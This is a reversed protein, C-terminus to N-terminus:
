NNKDFFIVDQSNLIISNIEHNILLDVIVYSHNRALGLTSLAENSLLGLSSRQRIIGNRLIIEKIDSFKIKLIGYRFIIFPRDEESSNIQNIQDQVFLARLYNMLLSELTFNGERHKLWDELDLFQQANLNEEVDGKLPNTAGSSGGENKEHEDSDSDTTQSGTSQSGSLQISEENGFSQQTLLLTILTSTIILLKTFM